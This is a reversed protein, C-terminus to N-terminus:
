RRCRPPFSSSVKGAEALRAIVEYIQQKAGIDVGRTPEDFIVIEPEIALTKAILVKQQNGGSLAGVMADLRAGRIDYARVAEQFGRREAAADIWGPGALAGKVLAVNQTISRTLLLGKGKRDETLYALGSRWADRANPLARDQGRLRFRQCSAPRLGFVAEFLETRGSGVLGSIGLIEGRRIALSVDSVTGPSTLNYVEMLVDGDSVSRRAAYIESLPRGVMAEAMEKQSIQTVDEVRMIRGDRLVAVRDAIEKVEDLRHSTFIVAGGGDTFTRIREFLRAAEMASLVATPEDMLIIKPSRAFAKALEIM